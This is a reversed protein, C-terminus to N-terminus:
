RRTEGDLGPLADTAAANQVPLTPIIVIMAALFWFPEMVRVIIFTNAGIGHFLLGVIGGFFGISLGHHLPDGSTRYARLGSKWLAALLFCFATFGLLGTEALIRPYQADIFPYGTVGHGLLPHKQFDETLVIKWSMLRSSTSTDIRVAGIKLQEPLAEQNFTYTAREVVSKPLLLPSLVLLVMLPVLILLKRETFYILTLIMPPLGVWSGRSHTAGLTVLMLGMLVVLAKKHRTAGRTVLLGITISMMLILYGGLTNPEGEEGEFPASVRASSPIQSIGYLCVLFCVVLMVALFREIQEKKKLHNVAMFYVIFFEFYKLVFFFGSSGRIRGSMYGFLTSVVCVAFYFAMPRNLPTRLFLGLNKNVATKLFWSIGIIGILIDDFRLTFGRGRSATLTSDEFVFQPGLLMSAILIYLAMEESVFSVVFIIIAIVVALALGMTLQTAMYAALVTMSLVMVLFFMSKTNISLQSTGTM